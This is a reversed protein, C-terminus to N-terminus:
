NWLLNHLNPLMLFDSCCLAMLTGTDYRSYYILLRGARACRHPGGCFFVHACDRSFSNNVVVQWKRVDNWTKVVTREVVNVDMAERLLFIKYKSRFYGAYSTFGIVYSKERHNTNISINTLHGAKMRLHMKTYFTQTKQQTEFLRQILQSTEWSKNILHNQPIAEM